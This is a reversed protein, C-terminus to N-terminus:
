DEPTPGSADKYEKQAATLLKRFDPENHLRAITYSGVLRGAQVDSKFHFGLITRSRGYEYGRKLIADQCDPMVEVLALAIGWGIISHSSPYSSSTSYREDKEPLASQEGMRLFPRQRFGQSKAQSCANCLEDFVYTVYAAIDPTSTIDIPINTCAGYTQLFYNITCATDTVAEEGRVTSRESKAQWYYAVDGYYHYSATDAPSDIIHEIHPYGASTPQAKIGKIRRYEARADELDEAYETSTHLRAFAASAALRGADVDSQWHAGVIVRSDGYEYGRRLITDQYEPAMEALALATSWGFGTHGSPYSGNHRLDWENDFEGWVHENMRAFPRVRMYKRKAKGTAKNGTEGVRQLLRWIAPTDEETIKMNMAEGYVTAMRRVGYLSEWSAQRGRETSRVSKGWIWRMFDGVFLTSATDPPVPLYVTPDPLENTSFYTTNNPRRETNQATVQLSACLTLITLLVFLRYQDIHSAKTKMSCLYSIIRVHIVFRNM